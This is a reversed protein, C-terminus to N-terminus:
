ACSSSCSRCLFALQWLLGAWTTTQAVVVPGVKTVELAGAWTFTGFDWLAHLIM